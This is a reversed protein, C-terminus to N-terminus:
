IVNKENQYLMGQNFYLTMFNNSICRYLESSGLFLIGGESLTSCLKQSIDLKLHESFYIMIYRLFVVDFRGLLLFSNKLNFNRFSVAHKIKEDLEYYTGTKTFYKSRYTDDLGRMISIEDYRGIQAIDLISQSIDTAIIEFQSLTVDTINNLELYHDIMMATSYAEQGSSSAASWIRVSSKKKSRLEDIYQHMLVKEIYLWPTQDRFWLTENTTIADIIKELLTNDSGSQVAHYLQQFSSLKQEKLIREFRTEILYAKDQGIEIGTKEEILQKLLIYEYNSLEVPM